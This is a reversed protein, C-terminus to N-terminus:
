AHRAFRCSVVALCGAAVWRREMEVLGNKPIFAQLGGELLFQRGNRYHEGGAMREILHTLRGGWRSKRDWANEFDVLVVNGAPKLVRKVEAIMTSRFDPPKDHLAFSIVAAGFIGSRFPLLGADGQVFPLSRYKLRAYRLVRDDLDLGAVEGGRDVIHRTQVGTGCCIDLVPSPKAMSGASRRVSRVLREITFDYFRAYPHLSFNM